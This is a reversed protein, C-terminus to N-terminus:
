KEYPSIHIIIYKAKAIGKKINKEIEEMKDHAKKLSYNGDMSVEIIIEYYGGYKLVVLKDISKVDKEKLIINRIQETNEDNEQEGILTCLNEKIIDYGTKIIFISVIISTIKDMYRLIPFIEHFQILIGGVLVVISSYVDTSSEKGSAILINNKLEEGKKILFSSLLKKALITFICVWIVMMSPITEKANSVGALLGLGLFLIFFGILSSTIYELRGHGYPHEIDAPKSAFFNGLLAVIDTILDSFSHIGDAILATSRVFAGVIIKFVALFINTFFSVTMVHKVKKM